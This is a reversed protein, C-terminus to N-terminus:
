SLCCRRGHLPILVAERESWGRHIRRSITGRPLGREQEWETENKTIGDIDIRYNVRTNNAQVKASVWRCNSPEYNGNVDIRDLTCESFSANKDYGNELAWKCFLEFSKWEDCVAIGRGGYISYKENSTDYCRRRMARWVNYLRENQTKSYATARKKYRLCGCSKTKFRLGNGSVIVKNGCDCVCEWMAKNNVSGVYRTVTLIGVREGTMDTTRWWNSRSIM